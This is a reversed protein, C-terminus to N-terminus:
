GSEDNNIRDKWEISRRELKTMGFRDVKAISRDVNEGEFGSM